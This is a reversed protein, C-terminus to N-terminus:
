TPEKPQQPNSRMRIAAACNGSEDRKVKWPKGDNWGSASLQIEEECVQACAEREHHSVLEAFKVFVELDEGKPDGCDAFYESHDKVSEHMLRIIEEKTM